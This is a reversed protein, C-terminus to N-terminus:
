LVRWADGAARRSRLGRRLEEDDDVMWLLRRPEIGVNWQPADLGAGELHALLYSDHFAPPELRPPVLDDDAAGRCPLERPELHPPRDAPPLVVPLDDSVELGAAADRFRLDPGVREHQLAGVAAAVGELRDVHRQGRGVTELGEFV